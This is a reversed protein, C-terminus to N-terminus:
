CFRARAASLLPQWAPGPIELYSMAWISPSDSGSIPWAVGADLRVLYRASSSSM